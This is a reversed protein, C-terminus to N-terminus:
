PAVGIGVRERGARRAPAAANRAGATKRGAERGRGRCGGGSGGGGRGRGRMRGGWRRWPPVGTSPVNVSASCISKLWGLMLASGILGSAGLGASGLCGGGGGGGTVLNLTVM